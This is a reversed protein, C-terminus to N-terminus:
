DRSSPWVSVGPPPTVADPVRTDNAALAVSTNKPDVVCPNPLNIKLPKPAPGEPPLPPPLPSTPVPPPLAFALAVPTSAKAPPTSPTCLPRLHQTPKTIPSIAITMATFLNHNLLKASLHQSTYLLVEYILFTYLIVDTDSTVLSWPYLVGRITTCKCYSSDSILSSLLRVSITEQDFILSQM